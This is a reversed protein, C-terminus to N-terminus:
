KGDCYAVGLCAATGLCIADAIDNEKQLLKIGYKAQVVRIAIHKKTIKGKIGIQKKTKGQRKGKSLKANQKKDIQSLYVGMSERWDSTNIYKVKGQLDVGQCLRNLLQCHIFELTKQTYRSKGKNTEEIVILDPEKQIVLQELENALLFARAHYNFPYAVSDMDFTSVITGYEIVNPSGNDNSVIAWGTKTSVDLALVRM